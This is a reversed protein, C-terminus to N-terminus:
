CALLLWLTLVTRSCSVQSVGGQSSYSHTICGRCLVDHSDKSFFCSLAYNINLCMTFIKWQVRQCIVSINMWELELSVKFDERIDSMTGKVFVSHKTKDLNSQGCHLEYAEKLSNPCSMKLWEPLKKKWRRWVKSASSNGGNDDNNYDETADEDSSSAQHAKWVHQQHSTQGAVCVHLSLTDLLGFLGAASAAPYSNKRLLICHRFTTILSIIQM